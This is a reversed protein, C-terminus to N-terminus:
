AGIAVPDVTASVERTRLWAELESKPIRVSAGIKVHAIKRLRLQKWWFAASMNTVESVQSVALFDPFQQLTPLSNTLPM